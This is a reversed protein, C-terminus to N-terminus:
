RRVERTGVDALFGELADRLAAALRLPDHRSSGDGARVQRLLVHGGAEEAVTDLDDDDDLVSPDCVVVDLALDPAYSRLTRLHDSVSLGETEKQAELNMVVIRRAATERLAEALPAVLLHPIVSTYWSGPGLVVADAERVASIVEDYVPPDNPILRIDRVEGIATAVRAQGRVRSSHGDNVITAEIDMPVAAMPLVRGHCGLLRAVWDLGDISDGLLEWLTVILLNGLAHGDLDGESTFRHQMADRWTLGWETEDCLASLAMRLDGPPLVGLEHRLRGSSGGDDAVTVVATLRRTVHRLARLTASLGHGGGLAVIRPGSAGRTVWGASDLLTDM